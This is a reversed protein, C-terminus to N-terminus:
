GDPEALEAGDISRVEDQLMLWDKSASFEFPAPTLERSSTSCWAVAEEIAKLADEQSPSVRNMELWHALQNIEQSAIGAAVADGILQEYSCEPYWMRQALETLKGQTLGSVISERAARDLTARMDVLPVSLAQGDASCAVAVDGDATIDGAKIADYIAGVGRMGFAHLEAARLAGQGSAGWVPIGEALAWMIESHTVSPFFGFGGDM